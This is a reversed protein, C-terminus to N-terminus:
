RTAGEADAWIKAAVMRGRHRNDVGARVFHHGAKVGSRFTALTTVVKIVVRRNMKYTEGQAERATM